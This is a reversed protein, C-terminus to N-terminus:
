RRLTYHMENWSTPDKTSRNVMPTVGINSLLILYDFFEGVCDRAQVRVLPGSSIDPGIFPEGVVTFVDRPSGIQSLTDDYTCHHELVDGVKIDELGVAEAHLPNRHELGVEATIEMDPYKDIDFSGVVVGGSKVTVTVKTTCKGPM